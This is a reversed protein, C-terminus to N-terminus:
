GALKRTSWHTSGDAPQRSTTYHLVRAELQADITKNLRGTLCNALGAMCSTKFRERWHQIFRVDCDLKHRIDNFGVGDASMLIMRARRVLAAQGSQSRVLRELQSRENKRLKLTQM